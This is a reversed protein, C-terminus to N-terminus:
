LEIFHGQNNLISRADLALLYKNSQNRLDMGKIPTYCSFQKDNNCEFTVKAFSLNVRTVTYNLVYNM